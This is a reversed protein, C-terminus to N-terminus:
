KWLCNVVDSITECSGWNLHICFIWSNNLLNCDTMTWVVVRANTSFHATCIQKLVNVIAGAHRWSAVIFFYPVLPAQILAVSDVFSVVSQKEWWQDLGVRLCRTCEAAAWSGAVLNNRGSLSSTPYAPTFSTSHSTDHWTCSNRPSYSNSPKM